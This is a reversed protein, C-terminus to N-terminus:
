PALYWQYGIAYVTSALGVALTIKNLNVYRKREWFFAFVIASSIQAYRLFRRFLTATNVGGGVFYLLVSILVIFLTIRIFMQVEFPPQTTDKKISFLLCQLGVLFFSLEELFFSIRLGIGQQGGESLLYFQGYAIAQDVGSDSFDGELTFFLDLYSYINNFFIIVAVTLFAVLWGTKIKITLYSLAIVLIIFLATKHFALSAAMASLGLLYSVTRPTKNLPRLLLSFGWLALSIAASVRAYSFWLIWITGFFFLALDKNVPIRKFLDLVLFFSLGWVVFRFSAYNFSLHKAIWEYIPEMHGREGKLMDVYGEYYHFWDAGWFSFLIFVFMVFIALNRKQKNVHYPSKLSDKLLFFIIAIELINSFVQLSTGQQPIALLFM